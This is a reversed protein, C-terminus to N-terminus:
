KRRKKRGKGEERNKIIVQEKIKEKRKIGYM